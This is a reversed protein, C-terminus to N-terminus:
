WHYYWAILPVHLPVLAPFHYVALVLASVWVPATISLIDKLQPCACLPYGSLPHVLDVMPCLNDIYACYYVKTAVMVPSIVAMLVLLYLFFPIYALGATDSVSVM